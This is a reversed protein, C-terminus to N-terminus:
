IGVKRAITDMHRYLENLQEQVGLDVGARDIAVRAHEEPTLVAPTVTLGNGSAAAAQLREAVAREVAQAILAAMDSNSAANVPPTYGQTPQETNDQATATETTEDSM